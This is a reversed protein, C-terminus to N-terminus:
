SHFTVGQGADFPHCMEIRSACRASSEYLSGMTPVATAINLVQKANQAAQRKILDPHSPVAIPIFIKTHTQRLVHHMCIHSVRKRHRRTNCLDRPGGSQGKCREVRERQTRSLM